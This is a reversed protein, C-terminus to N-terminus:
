IHMVVHDSSMFSLFLPGSFTHISSTTFYMFLNITTFQDFWMRSLLTCIYYHLYNCPLFPYPPNTVYAINLAPQGHIPFRLGTCVTGHDSQAKITVCHVTFIYQELSNVPISQSLQVSIGFITLHHM